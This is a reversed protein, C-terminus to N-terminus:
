LKRQTLSNTHKCGLLWGDMWKILYQLCGSHWTAGAGTRGVLLEDDSFADVMRGVHIGAAKFLKGAFKFGYGYVVIPVVPLSNFM